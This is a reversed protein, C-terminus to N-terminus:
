QTVKPSISIDFNKNVLLRSKLPSLEVSMAPIPIYFINIEFSTYFKTLLFDRIHSILNWCFAMEVGKIQAGAGKGSALEMFSM